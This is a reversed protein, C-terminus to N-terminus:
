ASEDTSCGYVLRALKPRDSQEVPNPVSSSGPPLDVTHVDGLPEELSERVIDSSFRDTLCSRQFYGLRKTVIAWHGGVFM